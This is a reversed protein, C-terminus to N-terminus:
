RLWFFRIEGAIEVSDFEHHDTSVLSANLNAALALAFSDAVSMQYATKFRAALRILTRYKKLKKQRAFEDSSSLHGRYKGRLSIPSPKPQGVAALDVITVFYVLDPRQEIPQLPRLYGKEYVAEITKIVQTM